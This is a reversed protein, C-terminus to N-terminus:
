NDLKKLGLYIITIGIVLLSVFMISNTSAFAFSAVLIILGFIITSNHSKNAM